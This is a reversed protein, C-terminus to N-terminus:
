LGRAIEVVDRLEAKFGYEDNLNISSLWSLVDDYTGDGSYDSDNLLMGFLAVAATFQTFDSAQDFSHGPDFVPLQLPISTDSDPEKYRFNITFTPVQVSPPVDAPVIEYLATINQDAGIEGADREDDEFDETNLLRNEYGILRYAAVLNPDFEVQVKVDKAVTYFKQYDYIFVKRLQEVNDAYEYTGNGNNAVQELLEDNYIDGVGLVTLFIGQDRQTEILEVLEETSSVGVNFGGDTGVIIRNNGGEVFNQQAIEYATLIGEAGATSGGAGLGNIAAKITAPDSGPTSELAVGASGAYTVIAVRDEASLEDVFLKFGEKLLELKNPSSMSGSVDILFVFNAPPLDNEPLPRGKIGIRILRNDTNWPCQSVEGNLSIPHAPNNYAYDLGFYNILEETRIYDYAPLQNFESLIYRVYAFSAGDADVSFTSIPEDNVAIFPNEGLGPVDQPGQTTGAGERGLSNSDFALNSAGTAGYGFRFRDQQEPDLSEESCSWLGILLFFSIYLLNKM